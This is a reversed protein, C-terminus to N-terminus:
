PIEQLSFLKLNMPTDLGWRISRTNCCVTCQVANGFSIHPSCFKCTQMTPIRVLRSPFGAVEDAICSGSRNMQTFSPGQPHPRGLLSLSSVHLEEICKVAIKSSCGVFCFTSAGHRANRQHFPRRLTPGTFAFIRFGNASVTRKAQVKERRCTHPRTEKFYSNLTLIARKNEVFRASGFMCTRMCARAM